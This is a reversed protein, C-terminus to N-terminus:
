RRKPVYHTNATLLASSFRTGYVSFYRWSCRLGKSVVPIIGLARTTHTRAFAQFMNGAFRKQEVCGDICILEVRSVRGREATDREREMFTYIDVEGGGGDRNRDAGRDRERGCTSQRGWGSTEIRVRGEGM